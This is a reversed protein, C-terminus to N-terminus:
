GLLSGLSFDRDFLVYALALLLPIDPKEKGRLILFAVGM